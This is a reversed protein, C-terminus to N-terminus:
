LLSKEGVSHFVNRSVGCITQVATRRIPDLAKVVMASSSPNDRNAMSFWNVPAVSVRLRVLLSSTSLAWTDMFCVKRTERPIGVTSLMRRRARSNALDDDAIVAALDSGISAFSYQLINYLTASLTAAVARSFLM